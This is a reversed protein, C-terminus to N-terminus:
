SDESYTSLIQLFKGLQGFDRGGLMHQLIDYWHVRFCFNRQMDSRKSTRGKSCIKNHIIKRFISIRTKTYALKYTIDIDNESEWLTCVVCRCVSRM